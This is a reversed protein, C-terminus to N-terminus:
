WFIFFPPQDGDCWPASRADARDAGDTMQSNIYNRLTYKGRLLAFFLSFFPISM